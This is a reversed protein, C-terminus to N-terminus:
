FHERRCYLILDFILGFLLLSAGSYVLGQLAQNSMGYFILITGGGVFLVNVLGVAIIALKQPFRSMVYLYAISLIVATFSSVLISTRSNVIDELWGEDKKVDLTSTSEDDLVEM